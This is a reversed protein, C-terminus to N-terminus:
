RKPDGPRPVGFGAAPDIEGLVGRYRDCWQHFMMIGLAGRVGAPRKDRHHRTLRRLAGERVWPALPGNVVGAHVADAIPESRGRREILEGPFDGGRRSTGLSLLQPNIREFAADYLKGGSKKLPSIALMALAVEHDILPM